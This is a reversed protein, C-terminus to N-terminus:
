VVGNENLYSLMGNGLFLVREGREGAKRLAFEKAEQPFYPFINAQPAIPILASPHIDRNTEDDLYNTVILESLKPWNALLNVAEKLYHIRDLFTACVYIKEKDGLLEALSDLLAQLKEPSSAVTALMNDSLKQLRGSVSTVKLGSDMEQWRPGLITLAGVLAQSANECQFSGLANLHFVQSNLGVPDVNYRKCIEDSLNLRFTSGSLSCNLDQASFDRGYLLGQPLLPIVKPDQRAFILNDKHRLPEVKHYFPGAKKELETHFGQPAVLLQGHDTGIPGVLTLVTRPLLSVPDSRYGINAECFIYDVGEKLAWYNLLWPRMDYPAVKGLEPEREVGDVAERLLPFLEMFERESMSRVSGNHWIQYRQLNGVPSESLPPKVGVACKYGLNSFISACFSLISAKGCSGVSIISPINNFESPMFELMKAFRRAHFDEIKEPFSHQREIWNMSEVFNM